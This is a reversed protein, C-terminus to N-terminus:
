PTPTAMPIASLVVLPPEETHTKRYNLHKILELAWDSLFPYQKIYYSEIIKQVDPPFLEGENSSYGNPSSRVQVVAVEKIAGNHELYIVAPRNGDASPGSCVAWVYVEQNSRGLIDWECLASEYFPFIYKRLNFLLM